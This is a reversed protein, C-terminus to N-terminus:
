RKRTIISLFKKRDLEFMNCVHTIMQPSTKKMVLHVRENESQLGIAIAGRRINKVYEPYERRFIVSAISRHPKYYKIQDTM